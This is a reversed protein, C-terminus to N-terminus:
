RIDIARKDNQSAMTWRVNIMGGFPQPFRIASSVLLIASAMAGAARARAPVFIPNASVKLASCSLPANRSSIGRLDTRCNRLSTCVIVSACALAIIYFM